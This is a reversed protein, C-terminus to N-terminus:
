VHNRAEKRRCVLSSVTCGLWTEAVFLRSRREVALDLRSGDACREFSCRWWKAKKTNRTIGEVVDVKLIASMASGCSWVEGVSSSSDCMPLPLAM